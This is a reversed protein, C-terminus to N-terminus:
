AYETFMQQEACMNAIDRLSEYSSLPTVTPLQGDTCGSDARGSRSSSSSSSPVASTVSGLTQISLDLPEATEEDTAEEPPWATLPSEYEMVAPLMQDMVGLGKLQRRKAALSEAIQTISKHRKSSRAPSVQAEVSSAAAESTMAPPAQEVCDSTKEKVATPKRSKKVETSTRKAKKDGSAANVKKKLVIKIPGKQKEMPQTKKTPANAVQKARMVDDNNKSSKVDDSAPADSIDAPFTLSQSSHGQSSNAPQSGGHRLLGLHSMYNAKNPVGETSGNELVAAAHQSQRRSSYRGKKRSIVLRQESTKQLTGQIKEVARTALLKEEKSARPASTYKEGARMSPAADRSSNRRVKEIAKTVAAHLRSKYRYDDAVGAVDASPENVRKVQAMKQQLKLQMEHRLKLPHKKRKHGHLSSKTAYVKSCYSCPLRLAQQQLCVCM